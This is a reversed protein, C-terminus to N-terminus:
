PNTEAGSAQGNKPAAPKKKSVPTAEPASGYLSEQRDRAVLLEKELRAQDNDSLPATERAPPMDHVAPYQYSAAMPRAPLSAPEGGVAAPLQDVMSSACGGLGTALVLTLAVIAIAPSQHARAM